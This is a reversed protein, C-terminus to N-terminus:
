TVWDVVRWDMWHRDPDIGSVGIFGLHGGHSTIHLEIAPSLPLNQFIQAPIIPDDAASIIQTVVSVGPLFQASSCRKYYEKAGSFGGLPAVYQDDFERLRPPLPRLPIDIMDPVVRRRHQLLRHLTRIFSWDYFRNVSKRLNMSCFLLDVPPAIAMANVVASPMLEGMEGLFKLLINAGMSFGVLSIPSPPFHDIIYDLVSALDESKGAHSHGRAVSFGAGFGRLDKRISRVGCSKLKAAIRVMYSSEHSGGLGHVLLAIRDGSQWPSPCDDHLVLRDGDSLVVEHRVASYEQKVPLYAAIVTQLHGNCLLPHPRFPPLTIADM